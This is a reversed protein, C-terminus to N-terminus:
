RYYNLMGLFRRLELVNNPKKYQRIATVKDEMPRIGHGSIVYGLFNVEELGFSCKAANIQIGAAQLKEFVRQQHSRHEEPTESAVLIDDVYCFV